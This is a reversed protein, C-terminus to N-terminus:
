LDTLTKTVEIPDVVAPFDVEAAEVAEGFLWEVYPTSGLGHVLWGVVDLGFHAVENQIALLHPLKSATFAGAVMVVAGAALRHGLTTERGMLRNFVRQTFRGVNVHVKKIHKM